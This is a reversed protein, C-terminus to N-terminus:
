QFIFNLTPASPMSASAFQALFVTEIASIQNIEEGERVGILREAQKLALANASSDRWRLPQGSALAGMVSLGARIGHRLSQADSLLMAHVSQKATFDLPIEARPGITFIPLM